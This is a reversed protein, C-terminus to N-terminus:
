DSFAGDGSSLIIYEHWGVLWDFVWKGTCSVGSAGCEPCKIKWLQMCKGAARSVPERAFDGNETPMTGNARRERASHPDCCRTPPGHKRRRLPAASSRGM